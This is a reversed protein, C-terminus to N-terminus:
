HGIEIVVRRSEIDLSGTPGAGPTAGRPRLVIRGPAVGDQALVDALHQARLKSLTFNSEPSGVTDAYGEVYVPEGPAAKAARAAHMVVGQGQSDLDASWPAFFVVFGPASPTPDPAQVCGSLGALVLSLVAFRRM